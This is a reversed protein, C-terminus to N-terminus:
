PRPPPPFGCTGRGQFWDSMDRRSCISRLSESLRPTCHGLPPTQPNMEVWVRCTHGPVYLLARTVTSCGPLSCPLVIRRELLKPSVPSYGLFYDRRKITLHSMVTKLTYAQLRYEKLGSEVWHGGGAGWPGRLVASCVTDCEPAAGALGPFRM